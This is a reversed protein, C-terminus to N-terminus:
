PAGQRHAGQGAAEARRHVQCASRARRGPRGGGRHGAGECGAAHEAAALVAWTTCGKGPAPRGLCQESLGAGTSPWSCRQRRRRLGGCRSAPSSACSPLRRGSRLGSPPAPPSAAPSCCCLTGSATGTWSCSRASLPADPLRAPRCAATCRECCITLSFLLKPHPSVGFSSAIALLPAPAAAMHSRSQLAPRAKPARGSILKFAYGEAGLLGDAV